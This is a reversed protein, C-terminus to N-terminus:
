HKFAFTLKRERRRWARECGLTRGRFKEKIPIGISFIKRHWSQLM